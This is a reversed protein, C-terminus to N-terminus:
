FEVYVFEGKDVMHDISKKIEEKKPKRLKTSISDIRFGNEDYLIDNSFALGKDMTKICKQFSNNDGIKGSDFFNYRINYIVLGKKDLLEFSHHDEAMEKCWLQLRDLITRNKKEEKEKEKEKELHTQYLEDILENLSGLVRLKEELSVTSSSM